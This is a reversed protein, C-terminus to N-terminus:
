LINNKKDFIKIFSKNLLSKIIFRTIKKGFYFIIFFIFFYLITLIGFGVVYNGFYFSFFFCLSLSVFFLIMICFILLLFNLFIETM